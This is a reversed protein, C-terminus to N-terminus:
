RVALFPLVSFRRIKKILFNTFFDFDCTCLIVSFCPFFFCTGEDFEEKLLYAEAKFKMAETNNPELEDLVKSCSALASNADGV